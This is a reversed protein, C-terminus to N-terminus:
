KSTLTMAPRVALVRKLWNRVEVTRFETLKAVLYSYVIVFALVALGIALHRADPLWRTDGALLATLLMLMPMHALYLTYSFGAIERSPREYWKGTAADRAGLLVYLLAFTGLGLVCSRPFSGAVGPRLITAFFVAYIAAALWRMWATTKMVPLVALLAGLLWIGMSLAIGSGVAYLLALCMAGMAIRKWIPYRGRIALMGLPFILYYWFENALSWLAGNSGFMPVAITQLFFCNGLFTKWTLTQYVNTSLHNMVQGSYLKPALQFHTGTADLLGGLVLAPLLVIWLRVGRQLIYERWSWTDLARLVHGGVLYGSLVFFVIVSQYGMTCMGYPVFLIGRHATLQPYDIFLMRRWHGCCVLLAAIGRIVDLLVSATTSRFPLASGSRMAETSSQSTETDLLRQSLAHIGSTVM